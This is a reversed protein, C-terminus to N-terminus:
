VHASFRSASIGNRPSACVLVYTVPSLVWAVWSFVLWGINTVAQPMMPLLIARLQYVGVLTLLSGLLMGGSKLADLARSTKTRTLLKFEGNQNGFEDGVRFAIEAKKWSQDMNQLEASLVGHEVVINRATSAYSGGPADAPVARSMIPKAPSAPEAAAAAPAAVVAPEAAAKAPAAKAPTAAKAPAAKVPAAKAPAAAPAAAPEAPAGAAKPKPKPSAPKLAPKALAPKAKPKPSTPKAPPAKSPLEAVPVGSKVATLRKELEDEQAGPMAGRFHM